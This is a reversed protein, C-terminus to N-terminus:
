RLLNIIANTIANDLIGIAKVNTRHVLEELRELEFVPLTSSAHMLVKSKFKDNSDKDVLIVKVKRKIKGISEEGFVVSNSKIAFGIFTEIKSKQM